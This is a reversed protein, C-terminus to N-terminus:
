EKRPRYFDVTESFFTMPCPLSAWREYFPLLHEPPVLPAIHRSVAILDFEKKRVMLYVKDRFALGRKLYEPAARTFNNPVGWPFYGTQGNDWVPKGLKAAMVALPPSNLVRGHAKVVTEIERWPASHDPPLAPLFHFLMFLNALLLLTGAWCRGLAKEAQYLAVWLLFPTIFTHHYLLLNGPHRGLKLIVLLGGALLLFHPFPPKKKFLGERWAWWRAGLLNKWLGLSGGTAGPPDEPQKSRSSPDLSLIPILLFGFTLTWYQALGSRLHGWDNGQYNLHIFFTNTFYSPYFCDMLLLLPILFWVPLIGYLLGKGKHEFFFLYLAVLPWGVIFYPKALFGLLSLFGGAALGLVSFGTWWPILLAALFLFLGLADPRASLSLDTSLFTAMLLAGLWSYSLSVGSRRMAKFLLLASGALAILSVLRHAFFTSGFVMAMPLMVWHYAIGYVNIFVPQLELAYPNLGDLMLSTTLVIAGERYEYPFDQGLVRVIWLFLYLSLAFAAGLILFGPLRNM